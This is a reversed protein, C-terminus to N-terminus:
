HEGWFMQSKSTAKMHKLSKWLPNWAPDFSSMKWVCFFHGIWAFISGQNSPWDVRTWILPDNGACSTEAMLAGQERGLMVMRIARMSKVARMFRLLIMQDTAGGARKRRQRHWITSGSQQAIDKIGQSEQSLSLLFLLLLLKIYMCTFPRQCRHFIKPPDLGRLHHWVCGCQM